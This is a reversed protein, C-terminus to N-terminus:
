KNNFDYGIQRALSLEQCMFWMDVIKNEDNFHLVAIEDWKVRKNTAPAKSFTGSHLATMHYKLIVTNESAVQDTTESNQDSLGESLVKWGSELWSIFNGSTPISAETMAYIDAFGARTIKSDETVLQRMLEYNQNPMADELLLKANKINKETNNM